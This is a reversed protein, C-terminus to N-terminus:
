PALPKYVPRARIFGVPLSGATSSQQFRVESSGTGDYLGKTTGSQFIQAPDASWTRLDPSTEVVIDVAGGAWRRFTTALAPKGAPRALLVQLQPVSEHRIPITGFAFETRNDFGDQDDDGHPRATLSQFYFLEWDDPLGDQDTDRPTAAALLMSELNSFNTKVGLDRSTLNFKGLPRNFPDLFIVDRYAIGWNVWTRETATDQLWPLINLSLSINFNAGASDIRNM